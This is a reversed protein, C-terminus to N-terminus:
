NSRRVKQPLQQQGPKPRKAGYKSRRQTRGNVSSYGVYWTRHSLACGSPRKVRGGRVLVISHEQLTTDKERFIPTLKRVMQGFTSESSVCQLTLNRRLRSNVRVCVGRRKLVLTWHPSKGRRWWLKRGKRVLQQITPM